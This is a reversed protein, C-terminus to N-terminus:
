IATVILLVAITEGDVEGTVAFVLEDPDADTDLIALGEFTSGNFVADLEVCNDVSTTVAYVNVNPDIVSLQGSLVCETVPDQEFIAGDGSVTLTSGEDDYNGAIAALSSDLDHIADFTLSASGSFMAGLNTTCDVSITM